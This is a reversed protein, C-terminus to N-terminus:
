FLRQWLKGNSCLLVDRRAYGHVGDECVEDM